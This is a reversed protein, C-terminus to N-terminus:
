LEINRHGFLSKIPKWSLRVIDNRDLQKLLKYCRVKITRSVIQDKVLWLIENWLRLPEQRLHLVGLDPSPCQLNMGQPLIQRPFHRMGESFVRFQM